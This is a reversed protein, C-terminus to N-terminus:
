RIQFCNRKRLRSWVPGGPTRDQPLLFFLKQLVWPLPRPPPPPPSQGSTAEFSLSTGAKLANM